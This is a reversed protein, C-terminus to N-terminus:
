TAPMMGSELTDQDGYELLHEEYRSCYEKGSCKKCEDPYFSDDDCYYGGDKVLALRDDPDDWDMRSHGRYYKDLDPRRKARLETYSWDEFPFEDTGLAAVIAKGRSEAFAIVVWDVYGQRDSVVYAKMAM